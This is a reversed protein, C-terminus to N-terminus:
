KAKKFKKKSKKLSKKSMLNNLFHLCSRLLNVELKLEMLIM